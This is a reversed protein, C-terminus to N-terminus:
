GPNVLAKSPHAILLRHLPSGTALEENTWETHALENLWQLRDPYLPNEINAFDTNAVPLALSDKGVFAPVGNIIAQTGPGSNHNIVTWARDLMQNYDFGDYTDPIPKPVEIHAGPINTIRQRPHPRIIIPRDSHEKIKRVTDNLWIETPAQRSWQESDNRQCAIVIDVGSKKWPSLELRLKEARGPKIKGPYCGAWTGNIGLKWTNGRNLMGVELVFVPKGEGRYMKYVFENNKMRGNWLVSWIVAADADTSNAVTDINLWACGQLFADLVPQANLAIQNPFYAIKM